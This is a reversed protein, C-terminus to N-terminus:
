CDRRELCRWASLSWASPHLAVVVCASGTSCVNSSVYQWLEKMSPAKYGEPVTYPEPVPSKQTAEEMKRMKEYQSWGYTPPHKSAPEKGNM